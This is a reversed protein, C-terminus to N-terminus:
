PLIKCFDIDQQLSLMHSIGNDRFLNMNRITIIVKQLTDLIGIPLGSIGSYPTRGSRITKKM